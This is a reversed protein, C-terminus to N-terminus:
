LLGQRLLSRKQLKSFDIAISHGSNPGENATVGGVATLRWQIHGGKFPQMTQILIPNTAAICNCMLYNAAFAYNSKTLDLDKAM